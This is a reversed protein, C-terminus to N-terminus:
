PERDTLEAVGRGALGFEQGAEDPLILAPRLPAGCAESFTQQPTFGYIQLPRRVDAKTRM